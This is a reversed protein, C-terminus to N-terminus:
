ISIIHSRAVINNQIEKSSHCLVRGASILRESVEDQVLHTPRMEFLLDYLIFLLPFPSMPLMLSMYFIVKSEILRFDVGNILSKLSLFSILFSFVFGTSPVVNSHITTLRGALCDKMAVYVKERPTVAIYLIRVYANTM